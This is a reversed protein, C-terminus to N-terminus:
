QASLATIPRCTSWSASRSAPMNRFTRASWYMAHVTIGHDHLHPAPGIGSRMLIAPSGITGASLIVERARIDLQKGGLFYRLGVARRQEVLVRDVLAGTVVRLNRRKMAPALYANATSSRIGNGITTLNEYVGLQDGACYESRKAIGLTAFADM